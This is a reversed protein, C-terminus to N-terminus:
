SRARTRRSSIQPWTATYRESCRGLLIGAVIEGVVAPQRFRRFLGGVARAAILIVALDFVIIAALNM